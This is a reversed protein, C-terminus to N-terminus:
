AHEALVSRMTRCSPAPDTVFVWPVDWDTGDELATAIRREYKPTRYRGLYSRMTGIGPGLVTGPADHRSPAHDTFFVWPVDRNTGDEELVAIQREDSTTTYPYLRRVGCRAEGRLTVLRM